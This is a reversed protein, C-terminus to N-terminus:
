CNWSSYGDHSGFIVIKAIKEVKSHNAGEDKMHWLEGKYTMEVGGRITNKEKNTGYSIRFEVFNRYM